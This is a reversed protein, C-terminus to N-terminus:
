LVSMLLLIDGNSMMRQNVLLSLHFGGGKHRGDSVLVWDVYQIGKSILLYLCKYLVTIMETYIFISSHASTGLTITARGFM